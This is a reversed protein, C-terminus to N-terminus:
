KRVCELSITLAVGPGVAGPSKKAFEVNYDAMDLTLEAVFGARHDKFMTDGAGVVRAKASVPKTVGHFSLEGEVALADPKGSIKKSEFVIEPFEKSNFFDASRLHKDRDPSNTNVSDAEVVLLISSKSPDSADYAVTSKDSIRDFRGYAESIGIHKTHFIVASHANDVTYNEPAAPAAPAATASVSALLAALGAASLTATLLKM